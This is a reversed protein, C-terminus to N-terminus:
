TGEKRTVFAVTGKLGLREQTRRAEEIRSPVERALSCLAEKPSASRQGYVGGTWPGTYRATWPGDREELRPNLMLTVRPDPRYIAVVDLGDPKVTWVDEPLGAMTAVLRCRDAARAAHLALRAEEYQENLEQYKQALTSM